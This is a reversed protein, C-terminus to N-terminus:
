ESQVGSNLVSIGIYFLSGRGFIIKGNKLELGTYNASKPRPLLYLFCDNKSLSNQMKFFNKPFYFFDPNIIGITEGRWGAKKRGTRM